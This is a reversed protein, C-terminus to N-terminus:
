GSISSKELELLRRKLELGGGYGGLGGDSAIVRHCPIIIPIPNAALAQGVARAARPKGIQCVVWGYSRTEGCPIDRVAQWVLRQFPTAQGLDLKDPFTVIEGAFYRRLRHPLDAFPTPHPQADPYRARIAREAAKSSPSPLILLSLGAESGAISVWGLPTEFIHYTTTM